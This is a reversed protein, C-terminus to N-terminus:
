LIEKIYSWRRFGLIDQAHNKSLGFLKALEKAYYGKSRWHHLFLIDIEDLRSMGNKSGKQPKQLGETFAHKQNESPTNWELNSAHNNLKDGDKHNVEPKEHTNSCFAKAVLRHVSYSKVVGKKCLKVLEYGRTTIYSKLIKSPYSKTFIGNQNNVRVRRPISRVKGCNSVEYYGEYGEVPRWEVGALHEEGNPARSHCIVKASPKNM